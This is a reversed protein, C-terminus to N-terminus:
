IIHVMDYPEHLVIIYLGLLVFMEGPTPVDCNWPSKILPIISIIQFDLELLAVSKGKMVTVAPKDTTLGGSFIIMSESGFKSWSKLTEDNFESNVNASLTYIRLNSVKGLIKYPRINKVKKQNHRILFIDQNPNTVQSIGYM